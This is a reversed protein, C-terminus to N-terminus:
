EGYWTESAASEALTDSLRYDSQLWQSTMPEISANMGYSEYDEDSSLLMDALINIDIAQRM